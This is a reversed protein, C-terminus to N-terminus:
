TGRRHRRGRDAIRRLSRRWAVDGLSKHRARAAFMDLGLWKKVFAGYGLPDGSQVTLWAVDIGFQNHLFTGIGLPAGEQAALWLLTGNMLFLLPLVIYLSLNLLFTMGFYPESRDEPLVADVAVFAIILGAFVAWIWWGGIMCTYTATLMLLPMLTSRFYKVM